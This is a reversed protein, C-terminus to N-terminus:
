EGTDDGASPRLGTDGAREVADLTSRPTGLLIEAPAEEREKM